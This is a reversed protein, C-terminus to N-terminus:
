KSRPLSKFKGLEVFYSDEQGAPLRQLSEPLVQFKQEDFQIGHWVLSGHGALKVRGNYGHFLFSEFELDKLEWPKYGPIEFRKCDDSRIFFANLATCAVLEYGKSIGLEWLASLSNGFGTGGVENQIVSVNAPITPNFEVIVLRADHKTFSEWILYDFGDIDISLVDILQPSGAKSLISDLSCEGEPAVMCNVGVIKKNKQYNALFDRYRNEDGEIFCGSWGQDALNACNSLYRGDWAGFEVFYGNDVKMKENFYKILGDEGYQSHVNFKFDDHATKINQKLIKVQM